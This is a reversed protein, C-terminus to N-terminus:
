ATVPPSAYAQRYIVIAIGDINVAADFRITNSGPALAWFDAADLDIRDMANVRDGTAIEVLEVSKSGYNTDIELYYGTEVQGVLRLTKGTTLNRIRPSTLDGYVRIVVPASVDGNNTVVAELTRAPYELPYELPYEVGSDATFQASSDEPDRWFPSPCHYELDVYGHSGKQVVSPGGRPMAPLEVLPVGDVLFQLLGLSPTDGPPTPEAVCARALARLKAMYDATSVGLITIDCGIVRPGVQVDMLNDGIQGPGKVTLPTVLTEAYGTWYNWVYPGESDFVIPSGGGPPYWRLATRM